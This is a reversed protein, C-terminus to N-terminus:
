KWSWKKIIIISLSENKMDEILWVDDFTEWQNPVFYRDLDNIFTRNKMNIQINNNDNLKFDLATEIFDASSNKHRKLHSAFM